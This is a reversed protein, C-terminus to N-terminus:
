SESILKQMGDVFSQCNRLSEREKQRMIEIIVPYHDSWGDILYQLIAQNFAKETEWYNKGGCTQQGARCLMPATCHSKSINFSDQQYRQGEPLDNWKKAEELEWENKRWKEILDSM